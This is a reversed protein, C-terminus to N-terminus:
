SNQGNAQNIVLSAKMSKTKHHLTKLEKIAREWNIWFIMM